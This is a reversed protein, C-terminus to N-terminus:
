AEVLPLRIVRPELWTVLSTKLEEPVWDPNQRAPSLLRYRDLLMGDVLACNRLFEDDLFAFPTAFAKKPASAFQILKSWIELRPTHLKGEWDRGSACQTLYVPMGVRNDPFPRYCLLDLGAEKARPSAWRGIDGVAEGLLAAVKSVVTPLESTRARTWGTPQITWGSLILRLSTETLLEFLEGQQTFNTGFSRAWEPYWKALSLTLCFSYAPIERWAVRKTLRIGRIEIPCGTALWSQRRRIENLADSVFEWAFDQRDYLEEEILVDIIDAGTLEKDESFLLSAEIWDCFVDLNSNHVNVSRYLGKTPLALM